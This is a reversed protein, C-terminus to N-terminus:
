RRPPPTPPAHWTVGTSTVTARLDHTHVHTHHRRCLLAANSRDTTGGRSWWEAHHVDCWTAPVTCGPYSCHKDRRWM